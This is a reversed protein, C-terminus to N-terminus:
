PRAALEAALKRAARGRHSLANKRPLPLEAATQDLEPLLFHPDYGFGGSGSAGNPMSTSSPVPVPPRERVTPRRSASCRLAGCSPAPFSARYGAAGGTNNTAKGNKHAVVYHRHAYYRM